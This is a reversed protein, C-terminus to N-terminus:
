ARRERRLRRRWLLAFLPPVALLLAMAKGGTTAAAAVCGCNGSENIVARPAPVSALFGNGPALSSRVNGGADDTTTVRYYLFDGSKVTNWAAAPMTWTASPVSQTVLVGAQVGSSVLNTTFTPDNAAEITFRTNFVNANVSAGTTPNFQYDRGTWVTFTPGTGSRAIYDDGIDIVADRESLTVGAIAFGSLLKSIQRMAGYQTALQQLLDVFSDHVDRDSVGGPAGGATTLARLLNIDLSITGLISLSNLGRRTNWLAWDVIQGDAHAEANGARHEPFVDLPDAGRPAFGTQVPAPRNHGWWAGFVPDNHITAAWFDSLGENLAGSIIGGGVSVQMGTLIHGWEHTVVTADIASNFMAGPATSTTITASGIGFAVESGGGCANNNGFECPDDHNVTAVISPFTQSGLATMLQTDYSIWGFANIDQFRSNYGTSGIRDVVTGNLPAVNFDTGAQTLDGSSRGDAGFNDVDLTGTLLLQHVGGSAPDIEFSRTETGTTPSPNFVLGSATEAFFLPEVQLVRSTEADIWLRYPGGVTRVELRWAYRFVSGYPLLVLEPRTTDRPAAKPALKATRQVYARAASVAAGADLVRKNAINLVGFLRGHVAVVGRGEVLQAVVRALEVRVQNVRQDFVVVTRRERGLARLEAGEGDIARGTTDSLRGIKGSVRNRTAANGRKIQEELFTPDAAPLAVRRARVLETSDREWGLSRVVSLVLSRIEADTPATDRSAPLNVHFADGDFAPVAGSVSKRLSDVRLKTRLPPRQLPPAYVPPVRYQPQQAGAPEFSVCVLGLVIMGVRADGFSRVM